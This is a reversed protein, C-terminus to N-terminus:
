RHRPHAHASARSGAGRRALAASGDSRDLIPGAGAPVLTTRHLHLLERSPAAVAHGPAREVAETDLPPITGSGRHALLVPEPHGALALIHRTRDDEKDPRTTEHKKIVGREYDGVHVCGVLGTQARGEMTLRYLYLAPERERVLTADRILRDLNERAKAYVRPDHPEISDPVDIESRVVHLFSLPNDKALAAAEARSVVDYPPSAVAAAVPPAPRLARFPPIRM